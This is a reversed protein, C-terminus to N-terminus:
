KDEKQVSKKDKAKDPATKAPVPKVPTNMKEIKNNTKEVANAFVPHKVGLLKAGGCICAVPITIEGAVLGIPAAAIMPLQKGILFDLSYNLCWGGILLNIVLVAIWCGCGGCAVGSGGSRSM